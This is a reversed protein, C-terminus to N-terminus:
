QGTYLKLDEVKWRVAPFHKWHIGLALSDIFPPCLQNWQLVHSATHLLLFPFLLVPTKINVLEQQHSLNWKWPHGLANAIFLLILRRFQFLCAPSLSADSIVTKGFALRPLDWKWSATRWCGSALASARHLLSSPVHFCPARHAGPEWPPKNAKSRPDQCQQRVPTASAGSHALLVDEWEGMHETALQLCSPSVNQHRSKWSGRTRVTLCNTELSCWRRKM